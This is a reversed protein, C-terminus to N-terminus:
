PRSRRGRRKKEGGSAAGEGRGKKKEESRRGARGGGPSPRGRRVGGPGPRGRRARGLRRAGGRRGGEPPVAAPEAAAGSGRRLSAGPRPRPPPAHPAARPLQLLPLDAAAAALSRGAVSFRRRYRPLPTRRSAVASGAARPPDATAMVLKKRKKLKKQYM